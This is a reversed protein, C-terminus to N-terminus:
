SDVFGEPGAAYYVADICSKRVFVRITGEYDSTIIAASSMDHKVNDMSLLSPFLKSSILAEKLGMSPVFVTDTVIPLSARSAEFSEYSKSRDYNNLGSVKLNLPENKSSTNWIYVNGSESGSVIFNGTENFRARIQMQMNVLGKYKRIMCFDDLGFLRLRSDNTTVLMKDRYIIKSQRSRYKLKSVPPSNEYSTARISSRPTLATSNDPGKIMSTAHTGVLSNTSISISGAMMSERSAREGGPPQSKSSIGDYEAGRMFTLGTVKKGEKQSGSRNKCSIQTYYKLGDVDYFYVQGHLLGAVVFRADPTYRAATIMEPAQAWDRVRGDLISWVRLKKDSGGSLFYGDDRPHFAVSTVLDAHQFIQLCGPRSVHWLRVTKDLSASLLFNTASWSFDIVHETHDTYRRIPKSSIIQVDTGMEPGNGSTTPKDAMPSSPSGEMGEMDVMVEKEDEEQKWFQESKEHIRESNPAVAWICIVGDEGGSALYKSHGNAGNTDNSHIGPSFAMCWIPGNHAKPISTILLMPNFDTTSSPKHHCKVQLSNSPLSDVASTPSKITRKGRKPSAQLTKISKKPSSSGTPLSSAPATTDVLLPQLRASGEAGDEEKHKGMKHKVSKVKGVGKKMKNKFGSIIKKGRVKKSPKKSNVTEEDDDDDDDKATASGGRVDEKVSYGGTGISSTDHSDLSFSHSLSRDVNQQLDVNKMSSSRMFLVEKTPFLSYSSDLQGHNGDDLHRIDYEEGTDQNVVRFISDPDSIINDPSADEDKMRKLASMVSTTSDSMGDDIDGKIEEKENDSQDPLSPPSDIEEVVGMSGGGGGGGGSGRFSHGLVSNLIKKGSALTPSLVPSTHPDSTEVNFMVAKFSSCCNANALISDLPSSPLCCKEVEPTSKPPEYSSDAKNNQPTVANTPPNSSAALPVTIELSKSNNPSLKSDNPKFDNTQTPKPTAATPTFFHEGTPADDGEKKKEQSQDEEKQELEAEDAAVEADNEETDVNDDRDALSLSSDDKRAEKSSDDNESPKSDPTEEENEEEDNEEMQQQQQQQKDDGNEMMIDQMVKNGKTGDVDNDSISGLRHSGQEISASRSISLSQRTSSSLQEEVADFFEDDDEMEIRQVRRKRERKREKV